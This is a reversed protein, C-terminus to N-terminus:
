GRFIEDQVLSIASGRFSSCRGGLTELDKQLEILLQSAREPPWNQSSTAKVVDVLMGLCVATSKGASTSGEIFRQLTGIVHAAYTVDVGAAAAEQIAQEFLANQDQVDDTGASTPWGEFGAIAPVAALVLVVVILLMVRLM